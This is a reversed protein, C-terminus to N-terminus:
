TKNPISESTINGMNNFSYQDSINKKKIISM